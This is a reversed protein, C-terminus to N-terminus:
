ISYLVLAIAPAGVVLPGYSVHLQPFRVAVLLALCRGIWLILFAFQCLRWMGNVSSMLIALIEDILGGFCPLAIIEWNLM